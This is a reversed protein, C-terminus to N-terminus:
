RALSAPLEQEVWVQSGLAFCGVPLRLEAVARWSSSGVVLNGNNSLVASSTSTNTSSASRTRNVVGTSTSWIVSGTANNSIVLDGDRSLKLQTLSLQLDPVPKDRNGVWVTTLVSVNSFWIGLYWNPSTINGSKSVTASPRFFGLTFKGNGSVLRDGAALARGAGLTDTTAGSCPPAGHLSFLLLGLSVSLLLLLPTM